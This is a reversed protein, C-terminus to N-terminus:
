NLARSYRTSNGDDHTRKRYIIRHYHKLPSLWKNTWSPRINLLEVTHRRQNIIKSRISNIFVSFQKMGHLDLFCCKMFFLLTKWKISVLLSFYHFTHFQFLFLVNFPTSSHFMHVSLLPYVFILHLSRDTINM